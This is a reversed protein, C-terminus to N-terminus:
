ARQATRSAREPAAALDAGVAANIAAATTGRYALINIVTEGRDAGDAELLRGSGVRVGKVARRAVGEQLGNSLADRTMAAALLAPFALGSGSLGTLDDIDSERFM